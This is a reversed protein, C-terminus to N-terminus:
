TYRIQGIKVGNASALKGFSESIASDQEPLRDKYFGDIQQKATVVKQDLGVLPQVERTKLQLERWLQDMQIKRSNASGVVPSLLLAVAVLDIVLMVALAAKVKSRLDKLEPM